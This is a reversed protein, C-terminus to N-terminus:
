SSFFQAEDFVRREAVAPLRTSQELFRLIRLFPMDEFRFGARGIESVSMSRLLISIKKGIGSEGSVLVEQHAPDLVADLQLSCRLISAWHQECFGEPVYRPPVRFLGVIM